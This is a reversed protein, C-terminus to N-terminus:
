SQKAAVSAAALKLKLERNKARRRRSQTKLRHNRAKDGHMKSVIVSM